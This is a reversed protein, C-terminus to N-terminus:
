AIRKTWFVMPKASQSSEDLDQWSFTTNLEPHKTYGRRVWFEDLPAYNAPRRAHDDPRQVACFATMRFRGLSRVHAEREDFFRVGLGRGRYARELVSEGFYFIEAPDYGNDIFPQKVEDTEVSMPVGTSAGIVQDADFAIVIVSDPVDIYTRLYTQEYEASGDYM